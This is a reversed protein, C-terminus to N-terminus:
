KDWGEMADHHVEALDAAKIEEALRLIAAELPKMQQRFSVEVAPRGDYQLADWKQLWERSKDAIQYFRGDRDKETVASRRGPQYLFWRADDRLPSPEM